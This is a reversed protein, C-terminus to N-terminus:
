KECGNYFFRKLFRINFFMIIKKELIISGKLSNDLTKLKDFLNNQTITFFNIVLSQILIRELIFDCTM